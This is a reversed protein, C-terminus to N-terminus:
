KSSVLGIHGTISATAPDVLLIQGCDGEGELRLALRDGITTMEAVKCGAPLTLSAAVSGPAARGGGQSVRKAVTVIVVATGAVILVGMVIVLAKLARM